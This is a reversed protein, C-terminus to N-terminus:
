SDEPRFPFPGTDYFRPVAAGVIAFVDLLNDDDRDYLCIERGSRTVTGAGGPGTCYAPGTGTERRILAADRPLDIIDDEVTRLLAGGFRYVPAYAPQGGSVPLAAAPSLPIPATATQLPPDAVAAAPSPSAVLPPTPTAAPEFAPSAAGASPQPSAVVSATPEPESQWASAGWSSRGPGGTPACGALACFALPIVLRAWRDM